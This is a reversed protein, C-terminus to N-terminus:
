QCRPRRAPHAVHGSAGAAHRMAPWATLTPRRRASQRRVAPPQGTVSRHAPPRRRPPSSGDAARAAAAQALGGGPARSSNPTQCSRSLCRSSVEPLSPICARGKWGGCWRTSRTSILRLAQGSHDAGSPSRPESSPSNRQEGRSTRWRGSFMM